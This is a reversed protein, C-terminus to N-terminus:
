CMCSGHAKQIVFRKERSLDGYLQVIIYQISPWQVELYSVGKLYIM